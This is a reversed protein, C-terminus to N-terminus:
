DRLCYSEGNAGVPQCSSGNPCLCSDPSCVQSCLGDASPSFRLCVGGTGCQAPGACNDGIQSSPNGQPVCLRDCPRCISGPGAANQCAADSYCSPICVPQAVSAVTGCSYGPRCDGGGPRCADLCYNGVQDPGGYWTPGCVSGGPCAPRGQGCLRSCYGGRWGDGQDTPDNPVNSATFYDETICRAEPAETPGCSGDGFECSAGVPLPSTAGAKGAGMALAIWALSLLCIKM